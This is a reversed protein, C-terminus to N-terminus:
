DVVECPVYWERSILQRNNDLLGPNLGVGIWTPDTTSLTAYSYTKEGSYKPKKRGTNNGWHELSM